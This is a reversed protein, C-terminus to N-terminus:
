QSERMASCLKELAPLITQITDDFDRSVEALQTSFDAGYAAEIRAARSIAIGFTCLHSSDGLQELLSARLDGIRKRNGDLQEAHNRLSDLLAPIERSTANGAMRLLNHRRKRRLSESILQVSASAKGEIEHMLQTLEVSLARLNKAIVGFGVASEGARSALLIANLAMLNIRFSIAIVSKIGENLHVVEVLDQAPQFATKRSALKAM